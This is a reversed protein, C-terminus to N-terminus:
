EHGGHQRLLEVVDNCAPILTAPRLPTGGNNDKANVDAKNVLLLATIDKYCRVMHLPTKGENDKANVDAGHALLLEAMDKYDRLAAYHLSTWGTGHDKANVDAGKALLLAVVDSHNERVALYLPTIGSFAKPDVQSKNNLLVEVVDKHGEQAALHVPTYNSSTNSNNVGDSYALAEILDAISTDSFHLSLKGICNNANIDAKNALLFEVIDKHGKQAALHLPTCGDSNKSFFLEPNDKLLAKVKALDGSKAADHIEGCFASINCALMILSLTALCSLNFHFLRSIFSRIEM